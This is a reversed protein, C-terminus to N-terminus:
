CNVCSKTTQKGYEGDSLLSEIAFSKSLTLKNGKVDVSLPALLLLLLSPQPLNAVFTFLCVINHKATNQTHFVITTLTLSNQMNEKLDM